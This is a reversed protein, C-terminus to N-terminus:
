GLSQLVASMFCTNGLNRLGVLSKSRGNQVGSPTLSSSRSAKEDGGRAKKAKPRNESTSSDISRSRKRQPRNKGSSSTKPTVNNRKPTAAIPESAEAGNQSTLASRLQELRGDATDNTM